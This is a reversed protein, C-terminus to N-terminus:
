ESGPGTPLSEPGQAASGDETDRDLWAGLRAATAADVHLGLKSRRFLIDEATRAWEHRVLYDAEAEYLGDGLPEGLDALGDAGDLLASVRTGYARAYRRALAPPLWPRERQLGELFGDFDAEPLDGGPLPADATWAGGAFGLVPQLKTLAHEALKRYTTIKGGFVSLLPADGAPAELDFAYDRTVASVDKNADDFLPRVGAYTWTVQEPLVPQALYRSVARCLYEIEDDTIAVADPQDDYDLDTTGILTYDREYPIVFVVRGDDNQLIYPDPHDYLRPLIIHGGKVLRVHSPGPMQLAQDLFRAVWPGTANVLARARVERVPSGAGPDLEAYWLENARRAATCRTRTLIQAGREGADIANLVVLRADDVWCDAYAFGKKLEPRLPLGAPDTTLDIAQSGPLRERGGLHDYLFLGLRIMWAPRQAADYPLVFRLPWIIHPAARLLVERERLAERVLRFERQELYRLGGHILKSSASSTHGALDDQECLLVSLGRGAADRAIGTGNVGGGVILLDVPESSTV